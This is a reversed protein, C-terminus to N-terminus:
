VLSSAGFLKESNRRLFARVLHEDDLLGTQGLSILKHYIDLGKYYNKTDQLYIRGLTNLLDINDPDFELAATYIKVAEPTAMNKKLYFDAAALVITKDKPRLFLARKLTLLDLELIDKKAKVHLKVIVPYLWVKHPYKDLMARYVKLASEPNKFLKYFSGKLSKTLFNEEM